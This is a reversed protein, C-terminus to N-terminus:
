RGNGRFSGRKQVPGERLLHYKQRIRGPPRAGRIRRVPTGWSGWIGASRGRHSNALLIPLHVSFTALGSTARLPCLAAGSLDGSVEFAYSRGFCGLIDNRAETAPHGQCNGVLAGESGYTSM